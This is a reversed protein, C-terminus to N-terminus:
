IYIHMYIITCIRMDHIIVIYIYISVWKYLWCISIMKEDITIQHDWHVPQKTTSRRSFGMKQRLLLEWQWIPNLNNTTTPPQQHNNTTTPPQQHNNTTTAVLQDQNPKLLQLGLRKFAAALAQLIKYDYRMLHFCVM